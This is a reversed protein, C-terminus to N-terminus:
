SSGLAWATSTATDWTGGAISMARHGLALMGGIAGPGELFALDPPIPTAAAANSSGLAVAAGAALVSVFSTSRRLM